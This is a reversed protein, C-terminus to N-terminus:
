IDFTQMDLNGLISHQTIHHDLLLTVVYKGAKIEAYKAALGTPVLGRIKVRRDKKRQGGNQNASQSSGFHGPVVGLLHECLEVTTVKGEPIRQPKLRVTVEVTHKTTSNKKECECQKPGSMNSPLHAFDRSSNQRGFDSFNRTIDKLVAYGDDLPEDIFYSDVQTPIDCNLEPFDFDISEQRINEGQFLSDIDEEVKKFNSKVVDLKEKEYLSSVSSSNLVEEFDSFENLPDQVRLENKRVGFQLENDTGYGTDDTACDSCFCLCEKDTNIM